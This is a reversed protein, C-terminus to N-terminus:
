SLKIWGRKLRSVLKYGEVVCDLVFTGNLEELVVARAGARANQQGVFESGLEKCDVM